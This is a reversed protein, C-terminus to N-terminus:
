EAHSYKCADGFKCKGDKKFAFCQKKSRKVDGVPKPQLLARKPKKPLAADPIQVKPRPQLWVALANRVVVLEHVAQDLKYGAQLLIKLAPCAEADAREAEGISPGRLGMASLDKAAYLEM